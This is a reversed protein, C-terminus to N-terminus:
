PQPARWLTNYLDILEEGRADAPADLDVRWLSDGRRWILLRRDVGVYGDQREGAFISRGWWGPPAPTDLLHLLTPALDLQGAFLDDPIEPLEQPTLLVLPIRALNTNPYGALERLVFNHPPSHDATIIVLTEDDWLDREDLQTMFHAMDRDHYFISQLWKKLEHPKANEIFDPLPPYQLDQYELRGSPTHTDCGLITIFVKEDRHAALQEIAEEYLFRDLV